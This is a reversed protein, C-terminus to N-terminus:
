RTMTSDLDADADSARQWAEQVSLDETDVVTPKPPETKRIPISMTWDYGYNGVACIIKEKPVSKM